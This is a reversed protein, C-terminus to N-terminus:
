AKGWLSKIKQGIAEGGAKACQYNITINGGHRQGVFCKRMNYGTRGVTSYVDHLIQRVEQLQSTDAMILSLSHPM